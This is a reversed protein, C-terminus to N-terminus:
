ATKKKDDSKTKSEAPKSEAKPEAPKSETKAEAKKDKSTKEPAGKENKEANKYSESRYDTQYFGSGKFIIGAGSGILRRLTNRGCNPCKRLSNATISQFQEFSHDCSDCLYDYTPM